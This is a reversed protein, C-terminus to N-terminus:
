KAQAAEEADFKAAQECPGAVFNENMCKYGKAIFVFVGKNQHVMFHSDESECSGVSGNSQFCGKTTQIQVTAVEGHSKGELFTVAQCNNLCKGSTTKVVFTNAGAEVFEDSEEEESEKEKEESEKEEKEKGEESDDKLRKQIRAALAGNSGCAGSDVPIGNMISWQKPYAGFDNNKCIKKLYAKLFARFGKSLKRASLSMSEADNQTSEETFVLPAEQVFDDEEDHVFSPWSTKCTKSVERTLKGLSYKVGTSTLKIQTKVNSGVQPLSQSASLTGMENRGYSRPSVKDVGQCDQQMAWLKDVYCHHIWFMPDAPSSHSGMHGGISVHPWGHLGREIFSRAEGFTKYLISSQAYDDDPLPKSNRFARKVCEGSTMKFGKFDGGFCGDTPSGVAYEGKFLPSSRQWDGAKREKGWDWYPITVCKYKGGLGRLSNEFNMLFQRHWPLFMDSGHKLDSRTVHLTAYPMYDGRKNLEIVGDIYLEKEKSSLELWEKRVRFKPCGSGDDSSEKEPAPTPKRTPKRTPKKWWWGTKQRTKTKTADVHVAVLAVLLAVLLFKM